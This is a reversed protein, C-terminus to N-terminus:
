FDCHSVLFNDIENRINTIATSIHPYIYKDCYYRDRVGNLREMQIYIHNIFPIEKKLRECCEYCMKKEM